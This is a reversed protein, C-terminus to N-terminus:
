GASGATPLSGFRHDNCYPGASPKPAKPVAFLSDLDLEEAHPPSSTPALPMEESHVPQEAHPTNLLKVCAERLEETSVELGASEESELFQRTLEDVQKQRDEGTM